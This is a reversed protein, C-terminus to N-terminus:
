VPGPVEDLSGWRLCRWGTDTPTLEIVGCNPIRNAFAWEPPVASVFAAALRMLTGHAVLVTDPQSPDSRLEEGLTHMVPLIRQRVQAATEGGPLGRHHEGTVLWAHLMAGYSYVADPDSRMELDGAQVEHAGEVVECDVQWRAAILEATQRARTAASSLIRAPTRGSGHLQEGLLTAQRCGLDTLEAGPLSTDLAGIVNSPTQGHRVLLLSPGRGDVVRSM